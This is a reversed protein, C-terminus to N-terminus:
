TGCAVSFLVRLGPNSASWHEKPYRKRYKSFEKPCNKSLWDGWAKIDYETIKYILDDSPETLQVPIYDQMVKIKKNIQVVSKKGDSYFIVPQQPYFYNEKKKYVSKEFYRFAKILKRCNCSDNNIQALLLNNGLLLFFLLISLAITKM